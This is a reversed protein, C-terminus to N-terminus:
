GRNIEPTNLNKQNTRAGIRIMQPVPDLGGKSFPQCRLLRWGTFIIGKAFGLTEVAEAAYCSCSPYFRCGHGPGLLASLATSLILQYARILVLAVFQAANIRGSKWNKVCDSLNM